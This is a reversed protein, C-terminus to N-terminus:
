SIKQNQCHPKLTKVSIMYPKAKFHALFFIPWLNLKQTQALKTFYNKSVGFQSSFGNAARMGLKMHKIIVLIKEPTVM